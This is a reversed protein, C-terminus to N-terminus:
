GTMKKIIIEVAQDVRRSADGRVVERAKAERAAIEKVKAAAEGKAKELAEKVIDKGKAEAGEVIKRADDKARAILGAKEKRADEIIAAARAETGKIGDIIDKVM